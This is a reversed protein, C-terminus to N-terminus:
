YVALAPHHSAIWRRLPDDEAMLAFDAFDFGPAVMCAALSYAGRSRAAQWVGAQVAHQPVTHPAVPGLAVTHASPQAADLLHLEIPAGELHCWVEDSLVRHWRSIASAPLLFYISTLAARRPRGDLPDVVSTARHVEAYFGGEPHPQLHLREILEAARSDVVPRERTSEVGKPPPSPGRDGPPGVDNV